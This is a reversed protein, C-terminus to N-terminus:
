QEIKQYGLPIKFLNESLTSERIGTVLVKMKEKRLLNREVMLMPFIGKIDPFNSFINIDPKHRRLVENMSKFFEFNNETVWFAVETDHSINKVRMQFCNRGELVMRNETRSIITDENTTQIARSPRLEYFLKNKPSLALMRKNVLNLIYISVLKKKSDYEDLRVQDGKVQITIFSTDYVTERKLNISGEFKQLKSLANVTLSLFIILEIIILRKYM